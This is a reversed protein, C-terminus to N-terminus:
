IKKGEINAYVIIVYILGATDSGIEDEQEVRSGYILVLISPLM